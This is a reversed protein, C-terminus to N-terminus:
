GSAVSIVVMDSSCAPSGRRMLAMVVSCSLDDSWSMREVEAVVPDYGPVTPEPAPLAPAQTAAPKAAPKGKTAGTTNSAFAPGALCAVMALSTWRMMTSNKM